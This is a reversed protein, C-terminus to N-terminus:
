WRKTSVDLTPRHCPPVLDTMCASETTEVVAKQAARVEAEPDVLELPLLQAIVAALPSLASTLDAGPSFVSNAAAPLTTPM